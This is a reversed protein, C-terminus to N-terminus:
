GPRRASLIRELDDDISGLIQEISSTRLRTKSRAFAGRPLRALEGARATARPLLEDPAVVEDVFGVERAGSPDYITALLAAETYRRTDIRDAAM